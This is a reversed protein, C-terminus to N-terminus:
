SQFFQRLLGHNVPQAANDAFKQIPQQHRQVRKHQCLLGVVADYGIQIRPRGQQQDNQRIAHFRTEETKGVAIVLFRILNIGRSQRRHTYSRQHKGHTAHQEPLRNGIPQTITRM